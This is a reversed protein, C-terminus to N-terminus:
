SLSLASARKGTEIPIVLPTTPKPSNARHLVLALKVTFSAARRAIAVARGRKSARSSCIDMEDARIWNARELQMWKRRCTGARDLWGEKHESAQEFSVLVGLGGFRAWKTCFRQKLEDSENLFDDDDAQQIASLACQQQEM